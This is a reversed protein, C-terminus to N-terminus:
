RYCSTWYDLPFEKETAVILQARNAKRLLEEFVARFRGEHGCSGSLLHAMQHIIAHRIIKMEYRKMMGDYRRFVIASRAHYACEGPSLEIRTFREDVLPMEKRIQDIMAQDEPSYQQGVLPTFGTFAALFAALTSMISVIYVGNMKM